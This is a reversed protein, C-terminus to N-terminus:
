GTMSFFFWQRCVVELDSRKMCEILALTVIANCEPIVDFGAIRVVNIRDFLTPTNNVQVHCMGLDKMAVKVSGGQGGM